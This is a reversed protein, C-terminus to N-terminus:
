KWFNYQNCSVGGIVSATISCVRLLERNKDLSLGAACIERVDTWVDGGKEADESEALWLAPSHTMVDHCKRWWRVCVSAEWGIVYWCKDIIKYKNM